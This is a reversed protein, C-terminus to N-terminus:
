QKMSNMSSRYAEIITVPIRGRAAIEHGETRAWARIQGSQERSVSPRSKAVIRKGARRGTRRANESWQELTARLREANSRCLDMEYAIGDISFQVTEDAPTSRDFDDVLTVSVQKTM